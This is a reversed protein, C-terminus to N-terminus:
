KKSNKTDQIKTHTKTFDEISKLQARWKVEDSFDEPIELGNIYKPKLYQTDYFEKTMDRKVIQCVQNESLSIGSGM